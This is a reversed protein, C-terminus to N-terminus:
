KSFVDEFGRKLRSFVRMGLSPAGDTDISKIPGASCAERNPNHPGCWGRFEGSRVVGLDDTLHTRCVYPEGWTTPRKFRPPEIDFEVKVVAKDIHTLNLGCRILQEDLFLRYPEALRRSFTTAPTSEGSLLDLEFTKTSTQTAAYLIGLTWYGGIENYRSAFKGAIGGAIGKIDRRRAM